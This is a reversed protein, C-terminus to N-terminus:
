SAIERDTDDTCGAIDGGDKLSEGEIASRTVPLAEVAANQVALVDQEIKAIVVDETQTQRPPILRPLADAQGFETTKVGIRAFERERHCLVVWKRSNHEKDHPGETPRRLGHLIKWRGDKSASCVTGPSSIRAAEM